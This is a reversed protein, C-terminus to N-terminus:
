KKYGQPNHSQWNWADRCIEDIGRSAQWGLVAKAKEADAWSDQVDGARRAGIEYAVAHGCARGFAEVMELVSYPSGTGLNIVETGKNEVAFEAAKVHGEALDMVHIYDRRCTGDPTDYDDGFVTLHDRRGVAVQSIYPMLNNPIGQPDEGILGSEHAGVPNFYRLLVVSLPKKWENAGAEKGAAELRDCEAKSAKAADTLMQEQMWKTWGYPNTCMGKPVDETFPPVNDEGYVTASSSFVINTLGLERMCELLTLTTDINNRYYEVPMAVSEGVAKLGAFHIICDPMEAKLIEMMREKDAVDAEYLAVKKGTIKEVRAIAEASSNAFNDVVAVDHGADLMAVATHSGIYGAGGTLLTKM